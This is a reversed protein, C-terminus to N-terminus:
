FFSAQRPDVPPGKQVLNSWWVHGIGQEALDFSESEIVQIPFLYDLSMSQFERFRRVAALEALDLDAFPGNAVARYSESQDFTTGNTVYFGPGEGKGEGEVYHTSYPIKKRTTKRPTAARKEKAKKESAAKGETRIPKNSVNEITDGRRTLYESSSSELTFGKKQYIRIFDEPTLGAKIKGKIKWGYDHPGSSYADQKRWRVVRRDLVNGDSMLAVQIKESSVLESDPTEREVVLRAIETRGRAKLKAM